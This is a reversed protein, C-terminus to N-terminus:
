NKCIKCTCTTPKWTKIHKKFEDVSTINKYQEPITNWLLSGRFCLAQTGYRLTKTEPLKLLNNNRLSYPTVKIDFFENMILPSIHNVSKYIEVLLTHINNEHITWSDDKILLDEFNGDELEYVLSLSRKHIKNIQNNATKNCFMWILPCYKFTSMIYADSLRKAQEVSLFKRIRALARLRNSASSCLNAIHKNFSLKDDITIGLLKVESKSQVMKDEVLFTIKSNDINSGLFMIQFKGPNAVMSNIRFWNLILHTDNSLKLNAEEYNPSYSYITTDDAFNCVETEQIFFMLDNIFLNFLLPGLISGQPVGRLIELYSSFTSGIKVRQYRNSLYNAILAIASFDFGYASLKALLLDHPLCDYAKSLDMLVTGIVGSKDLCKQWNKLLNLLAHQTSHGKRFGCLKPSLVNNAFDEIQQYLVKEYLKSILPLLSIPRYNSKENQDEKKFAPVIDALKLEGPFIDSTISNNICNKIPEAVEEKAIKFVKAPIDGSTSKNSDIEDIYKLIQDTSVPKFKFSLNQYKDRIMQISPHNDFSSIRRFVNYHGSSGSGWDIIGLDKTINVFYNNFTDSIESDKNLIEGKEVLIIKEDNCIGKNTFYPKCYNWFDKVNNGKPLHQKFYAKKLQNNLKTVKNRQIKYLRKDEEKQSKNAKNKLRSRKMIEKRITKNIHPKTNGRVKAQKIPAHNNLIEKFTNNFDNFNGNNSLGHQLDNLFYEEYFDKYSRNKLIKPELKTYTSKLMTYVMLHHDSMGTEFVQSFQHLNPRSTIILDICSGELSKYCTKSKIINKCNNQNLFTEMVPNSENINFDGMIIFDEYTKLYTDLLNTISSLFYDLNQDPPRYISVVLLKRQKLNIEIPIAQIDNPLHFNRLYKCPIDNNVYVLLGGKRSTVDLRFPKRM